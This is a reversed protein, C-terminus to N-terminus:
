IITEKRWGEFSRSDNIISNQVVGSITNQAVIQKTLTGESLLVDCGGNVSEIISRRYSYNFSNSGGLIMKPDFVKTLELESEIDKYVTNILTYLEMTPKEIKLNLEEIAEKRYITYDHSGSESCLFNIIKKVQEQDTIGQKSLLKKAIMQIQTKSRIVEGLTIPHLYSTLNVIINGLAVQDEIKFENKVLEIYSNVHEVSVPAKVKQNNIEIFPNFHGNTSPDIPGLSAQKTMVINNAGLCIITGSSHCKFPVIVEFNKCFSRILNVLSWATLTSGGRTYLFLSIKEVDGVKDLHDTFIPLIDEAIQTELGRRDSTAYILLKSDRSTELAKYNDLRDKYM